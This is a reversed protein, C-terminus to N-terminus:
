AIAIAVKCSNRVKFKSGLLSKATERYPSDSDVSKELSDLNSDDM